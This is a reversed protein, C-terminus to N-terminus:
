GREFECETLRALLLGEDGTLDAADALRWIEEEIAQTEVARDRGIDAVALCELEYEIPQHPLAMFGALEAREAMAHDMAAIDIRARHDDVIADFAVEGLQQAQRRQVHRGADADQFPRAPERRFHRLDGTEVGSEVGRLGILRRAKGQGAGIEIAAIAAITKM